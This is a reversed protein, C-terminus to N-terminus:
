LRRVGFHHIVESPAGLGNSSFRCGVLHLCALAAWHAPIPRVGSTVLQAELGMRDLRPLLAELERYRILPEGGMISLHLPRYPRVLALVGEVLSDGKYDAIQRLTM